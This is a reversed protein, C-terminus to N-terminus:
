RPAPAAPAAQGQIRLAGGPALRAPPGAPVSPSTPAPRVPAAPAPRGSLRAVAASADPDGPVARLVQTYAELAGKNDGLQSLSHGILKWAGSAPAGMQIAARLHAVARPYAKLNYLSSGLLLRASASKPDLVAAEQFMGMAAASQGGRLLEQGVRLLAEATSKRELGGLAVARSTPTEDLLTSQALRAADKAKDPKDVALCARVRMLAIEAGAPDARQARDLTIVAKKANGQRLQALGVIALLSSSEHEKSLGAALREAQEYDGQRLADLARGLAAQEVDTFGGRSRCAGLLLCSALAIRLSLM